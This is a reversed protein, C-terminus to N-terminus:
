GSLANKQITELVTYLDDEFEAGKRRKGNSYQFLWSNRRVEEKQINVM